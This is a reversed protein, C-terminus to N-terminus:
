FKVRVGIRFYRGIADYLVTNVSQGSTFSPVPPPDKDLVNNIVGFLQFRGETLVDYSMSLNLYAVAPIRNDNIDAQRTPTSIDTWLNNYKGKGIYLLQPTVSFGGAAVTISANGRFTPVAYGSVGAFISNEGARQVVAAGPTGFLMDTVYTGSLNLTVSGSQGFLRDIPLRYSLAGDFGRTTVTNLNVYPNNIATLTTGSLVLYSCLATNGAACQDIINQQGIRDIAGKVAIDYYDVSLQLSPAFSPSWVTGVTFTDSKEPQLQLNGSNNVQVFSSVGNYVVNLGQVTLSRQEFISPARIDRSRAIRFRLGSVPEYTSGLKWTTQGGAAGSYRAHRIAANFDLSKAWSLDRALPVVAEAYGEIVNFSGSYPRGNGSEWNDVAAVADVVARSSEDRYELGTAFSVPGAWTSFPDGRLNVAAAHQTYRNRSYVTGTVYNIAAASPSGNGFLNLPVCGAAATNFSAGPLTARCVIQGGSEVADAAFVYKRKNRMGSIRQEYINQGYSYHADWKWSGGLDGRLGVTGQALENTVDPRAHGIDYDIRGLRITSGVPMQARISAPLYANEARISVVTAGQDRAPLTQSQGRSYGYILDAFLTVTDSVDYDVHGFLTRRELKPTLTVGRTTTVTDNGGGVQLANTVTGYQGRVFAAPVGGALFETGVLSAPAGGTVGVILGGPTITGYRVDPSIIQRPQGNAVTSFPNTLIMYQQRGWDRTYVDYIGDNRVYDGAITLHGRGGAFATGFMAGIRYEAGDGQGSVGAQAEAKLGDFRTNLILNVVGAVADSGWQASAGGTVVEVRDIMLAPIANLDVQYPTSTSATPVSPVFRRGDLLTLTRFSGLGRLDAYNAGPTTTRIGSAAPNVTGRFAPIENLMNAINTEGRQELQDAGIITTPTPANFGSRAVRSGTVVITQEESPAAADEAQEPASAAPPTEQAFAPESLAGLACAGMLLGRTATRFRESILQAM